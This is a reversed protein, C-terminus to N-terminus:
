SRELWVTGQRPTAPEVGTVRFGVDGFFRALEHWSRGALDHYELVVRRADTWAQTRSARVMSHMSCRLAPALSLTSMADINVDAARSQNSIERLSAGSGTLFSDPVHAAM